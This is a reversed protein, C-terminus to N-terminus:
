KESFIMGKERTNTSLGYFGKCDGHTQPAPSRLMGRSLEYWDVESLVDDRGGCM